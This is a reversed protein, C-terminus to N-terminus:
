CVKIWHQHHPNQESQGTMFEQFLQESEAWCYPARNKIVYFTICGGGREGEINIQNYHHDYHHHHHQNQGSRRPCSCSSLNPPPQQLFHCVGFFSNWQLEHESREIDHSRTIKKSAPKHYSKWLSSLQCQVASTSLKQAVSSLGIKPADGDCPSGTM